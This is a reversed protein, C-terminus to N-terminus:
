SVKNISVVFPSLLDFNEMHTIICDIIYLVRGCDIAWIRLSVHYGVFSARSERLM